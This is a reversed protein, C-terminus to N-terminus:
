FLSYMHKTSHPNNEVVTLRHCPQQTAFQDFFDTLITDVTKSAKIKTEHKAEELSRPAAVYQRLKDVLTSLEVPLVPHAACSLGPMWCTNDNLCKNFFRVLISDYVLEPPLKQNSQIFAIAQLICVSQLRLVMDPIYPNNPLGEPSTFVQKSLNLQDLFVQIRRQHLVDVVETDHNV